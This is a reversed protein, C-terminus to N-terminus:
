IKAFTIIRQERVKNERYNTTDVAMAVDIKWSLSHQSDYFVSCKSRICFATINRALMRSYLEKHSWSVKGHQGHSQWMNFHAQEYQCCYPKKYYLLRCFYVRPSVSGKIMELTTQKRWNQLFFGIGSWFNTIFLGLEKVVDSTEPSSAELYSQVENSRFMLLCSHNLDITRKRLSWNYLWLWSAKRQSEM